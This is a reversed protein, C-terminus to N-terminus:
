RTVVLVLALTIMAWALPRSQMMAAIMRGGLREGRHAWGATRGGRQRRGLHPLLTLPRLPPLLPAPLSVTDQAMETPRAGRGALLALVGLLLLPLGLLLPSWGGSPQTIPLLTGVSLSAPLRIVEGAAPLALLAEIWAAGLGSLAAVTVGLWAGVASGAPDPSPLRAARAFGAVWLLWVAAAALGLLPFAANAGFAAQISLLWGGFVLTPPLGAATGLGALALGRRAGPLLPVVGALAAAGALAVIAADIGGPTGLSLSLLALGAAMPVAEALYGRLDVAAQARLAAALAAAVGVLALTLNLWFSPWRGGGLGYARVLLLFGLPVLVCVAVSGAELRPRRWIVPVWTGVPLAGSALLAVVALLLFLLPGLVTVPVAAYNSTGGTVELLVAAWLLLLWALRLSVLFAQLGREDEYRLASVLATVCVSFCVATLLLRDSEIACAAAFAALLALVCQFPTRRQFALLLGLPVLVLLEFATSVADLRMGFPVGAPTLQAAEFEIPQRGGVAWLAVVAGAALWAASAAVVRAGRASAWGLGWSAAAAVALLAPPVLVLVPPM